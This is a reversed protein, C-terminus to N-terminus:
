RGEDFSARLVRRDSERPLGSRPAENEDGCAENEDTLDFLTSLIPRFIRHLLLRMCFRTVCPKM